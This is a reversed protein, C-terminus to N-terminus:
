AGVPRDWVRCRSLAGWVIMALLTTTRAVLPDAFDEAAPTTGNWCPAGDVV